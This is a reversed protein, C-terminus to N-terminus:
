TEGFLMLRLPGPTGDLGRDIEVFFDQANSSFLLWANGSGRYCRGPRWDCSEGQDKSMLPTIFPWHSQPQMEIIISKNEVLDRGM